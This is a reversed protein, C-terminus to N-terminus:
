NQQQYLEKYVLVKLADLEERTLKTEIEKILSEQEFKTIGDQVTKQIEQMESISFKKLLQKVAEQKTEFVLAVENIAAAEEIYDNLVPSSEVYQKVVEIEESTTLRAEVETAVRNALYNMGFYYVGYGICVLVLVTLLMRKIFKM